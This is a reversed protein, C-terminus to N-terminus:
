ACLESAVAIYIEVCRELSAVDVWEVEAHAGEGSPGFLVTPIGADALLASDAWFPVGVLDPEAGLVAAAHRRVLQVVPEAEHVEFPNRSALVRVEAAFDPDDAGAQAVIAALEREVQDITEGPLTRREGQLVCSAPYSSYEQGGDILSAHVSGSGLYRHDDNSRLRRDLEELGVLVGGMKAIADIGLDPRSGHAARGRTEVEIHV